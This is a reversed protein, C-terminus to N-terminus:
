CRSVCELLSSVLYWTVAFLGFLGMSRLFSESFSPLPMASVKEAQVAANATLGEGAASWDPLFSWNNPVRESSKLTINVITSVIFSVAHGSIWAITLNSSGNESHLTKSEATFLDPPMESYTRTTAMNYLAAALFASPIAWALVYWIVACLKSTYGTSSAPKENETPIPVPPVPFRRNMLLRAGQVPSTPPSPVPETYVPSSIRRPKSAQPEGEPDQARSKGQSKDARTRSSTVFILACVREGATYRPSSMDSHVSELRSSHEM